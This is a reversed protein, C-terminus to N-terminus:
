HRSGRQVKQLTVVNSDLTVAGIRALARGDLTAGTAMTISQDARITGKFVSTTGLTASSGVQWFVNGPQANGILIVQCGSTTVLTSAMQFIWVANKNGQGDLYLDGSSIELSSTSKYLGPALTQGGLNEALAIPATSRGAAANFAITLSAQAHQAATDGAHITGNVVGPPFGTVATGAWAGLNGNITTGASIVNTVTSGALVAFPSASGLFVRAEAATLNAATLSLALAAGILFASVRKTLNVSGCKVESQKKNTKM